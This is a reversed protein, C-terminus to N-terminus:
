PSSISKSRRTKLKERETYKTGGLFTQRSGGQFIERAPGARCAKEWVSYSPKRKETVDRKNRYRKSEGEIAPAHSHAFLPPNRWLCCVCLAPCLLLTMM